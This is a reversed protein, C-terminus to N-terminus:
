FTLDQLKSDAEEWEKRFRMLKRMTSEIEEKMENRTVTFVKMKHGHEKCRADYAVLKARKQKDNVIFSGIIQHKYASPLADSLFYDMMTSSDPCKFDIYTERNEAYRDPSFVLWDFEDHECMDVVELPTGFREEYEAAAFKEEDTGRSMEPSLWTDKIQTSYKEALLKCILKHRTEKKESVADGLKTGTVKQSRFALWEPSGQKLNNHIRM